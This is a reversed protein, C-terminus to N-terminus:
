ELIIDQRRFIQIFVVVIVIFTLLWSGTGKLLLLAFEASTLDATQVIARAVQLLPALPNYKADVLMTLGLFMLFTGAAAVVTNRLASVLLMTLIGFLLLILSTWLMAATMRAIAEGTSIQHGELLMDQAPFLAFAFAMSGVLYIIVFSLVTLACLAIKNWVITSRRVDAVVPIMLTRWRYESAFAHASFLFLLLPLLGMVYTNNAGILYEFATIPMLGVRALGAMTLSYATLLGLGLFNLVWFLRTYFYKKIEARIM